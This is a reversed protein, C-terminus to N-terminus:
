QRGHVVAARICTSAGRDDLRTGAAGPPMVEVPKDRHRPGRLSTPHGRGEKVRTAKKERCSTPLHQVELVVWPRPGYLRGLLAELRLYFGQLFVVLSEHM